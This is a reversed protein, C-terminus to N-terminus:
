ETVANLDVHEIRLPARHEAPDVLADYTVLWLRLQPAPRQGNHLGVAQSSERTGVRRLPDYPHRQWQQLRGQRPCVVAGASTSCSTISPRSRSFTAFPMAPRWRKVRACQSAFTGETIPLPTSTSWKSRIRPGTSTTNPSRKRSACPQQ